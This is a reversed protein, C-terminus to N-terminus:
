SSGIYSHYRRPNQFSEFIIDFRHDQNQFDYLEGYYNRFTLKLRALKAIPPSLSKRLQFPQCMNLDSAKPPILAFSKHLTPNISHNLSIQEIHMVVYRNDTFNKRFESYLQHKGSSNLASSYSKPGFGALRAICGKRYTTTSQGDNTSSSFNIDPGKFLFSFPQSMEFKFYDKEIEYAITLTLGADTAADQLTAAFTSPTYDGVPMVVTVPNLSASTSVVLTNNNADVMYAALPMHVIQVEAAVVDEIEDPLPIEYHAANPFHKLNRDRSDVVVRTFKRNENQEQNAVPKIVASDTFNFEKYNIVSKEMQDKVTITNLYNVKLNRNYYM